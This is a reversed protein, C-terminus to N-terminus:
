RLLNFNRLNNRQSFLLALHDGGILLRLPHDHADSLLTDRKIEERTNGAKGLWAEASLRRTLAAGQAENQEEAFVTRASLQRARM